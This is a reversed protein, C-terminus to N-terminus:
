LLAARADELDWGRAAAKKELAALRREAQVLDAYADSARYLGAMALGLGGVFSFLEPHAGPQAVRIYVAAILILMAYGGGLVVILTAM